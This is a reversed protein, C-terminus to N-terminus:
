ENYMSTDKLRELCSLLDDVYLAIYSRNELDGRYFLCADSTSQCYGISQLFSTIRHNRLRPAQRLGYLSRKLRFGYGDRNEFGPIGGIYIDDRDIHSQVFANSVDAQSIDLDRQVAVDFLIRMTERRVVPAYNSDENYPKFQCNGCVVLRSKWKFVQGSSDTKLKYVWKVPIRRTTISTLLVEEFTDMLALSNYEEHMSDYWISNELAERASTPVQDDALFCFDEMAIFANFKKLNVEQLRRSYRRDLVPADLDLMLPEISALKMYEEPAPNFDEECYGDSDLDLDLDHDIAKSARGHGGGVAASAAGGYIAGVSAGAAAITAGEHAGAAVSVGFDGGSEETRGNFDGEHIQFDRFHRLANFQPM